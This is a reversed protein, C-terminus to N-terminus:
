PIATVCKLMTSFYVLAQLFEVTRNLDGGEKPNSPKQAKDMTQYELFVFIIM